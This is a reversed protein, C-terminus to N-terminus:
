SPVAQLFGPQPSSRWWLPLLNEAAEGGTSQRACRSRAQAEMPEASGCYECKKLKVQVQFRGQCLKNGRKRM